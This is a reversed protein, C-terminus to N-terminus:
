IGYNSSAVDTFIMHKYMRKDTKMDKEDLEKIHELLKAVKPAAKPITLQLIKPNFVNTDMLMTPNIHSINAVNRLCRGVKSFNEVDEEITSM